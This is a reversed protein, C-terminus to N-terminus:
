LFDVSLARRLFLPRTSLIRYHGVYSVSRLEKERITRQPILITAGM